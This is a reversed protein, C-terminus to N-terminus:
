FEVTSPSPPERGVARANASFGFRCHKWLLSITTTTPDTMLRDANPLAAVSWWAAAVRSGTKVESEALPVGAIRAKRVGARSGVRRMRVRAPRMM